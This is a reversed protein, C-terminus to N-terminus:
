LQSQLRATDTCQSQSRRDATPVVRTPYQFYLVRDDCVAATDAILGSGM